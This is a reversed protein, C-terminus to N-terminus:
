KGGEIIIKNAHPDYTFNCGEFVVPHNTRCKQFANVLQNYEKNENKQYTIFVEYKSGWMEWPLFNNNAIFKNVKELLNM